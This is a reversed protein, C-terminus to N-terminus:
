SKLEQKGFEKKSISILILAVFALIMSILFISFIGGIIGLISSTLAFTWSKRRVAMAGGIIAVIDFIVAIVGVSVVLPVEGPLYHSGVIPWLIDDWTSWIMGIIGGIILLAGAHVPLGSYRVPRGDTPKVYQRQGPRKAYAPEQTM